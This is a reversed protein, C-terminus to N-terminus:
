RHVSRGESKAAVQRGAAVTRGACLMGVKEGLEAADAFDALAEAAEAGIDAAPSALLLGEVGRPRVAGRSVTRRGGEACVLDCLPEDDSGGRRGAYQVAPRIRARWASATMAAG